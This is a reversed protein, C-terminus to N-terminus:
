SGQIAARTQYSQTGGGQSSMTTNVASTGTVSGALQRPSKVGAKM